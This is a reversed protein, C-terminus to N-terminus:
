SPSSSTIIRSCRSSSRPRGTTSNSGRLHTHLSSPLSSPLSADAGVRFLFLRHAKRARVKGCSSDSLVELLKIPLVGPKVDECLDTVQLDVESLWSNWWRTFTRVQQADLEGRLKNRLEEGSGGKHLAAPEEAASPATGQAVSAWAADKRGRSQTHRLARGGEAYNAEKGLRKSAEVRDSHTAMLANQKSATPNNSTHTSQARTPPAQHTPKILSRSSLAPEPTRETM